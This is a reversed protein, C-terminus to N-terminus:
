YEIIQNFKIKNTYIEMKNSEEIIGETLIIATSVDETTENVVNFIGQQNINNM